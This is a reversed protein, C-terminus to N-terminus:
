ASRIRAQRLDYKEVGFAVPANSVSFEQTASAAAVAKGSLQLEFNGEGETDCVSSTYKGTGSAVENCSYSEGGSISIENAASAGSGVNVTIEVELTEYPPLDEEFGNLQTTCEVLQPGPLTCEVAGRAGFIGATGSASTATLNAPLM